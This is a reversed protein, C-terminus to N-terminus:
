NTFLNRSGYKDIQTKASAKRIGAETLEYIGAGTSRRIFGEGALYLFNKKAEYPGLKHNKSFGKISIPCEDLILNQYTYTKDMKIVGSLMEDLNNISIVDAEPVLTSRRGKERGNKIVGTSPFIYIEMKERKRGSRTTEINQRIRGIAQLMEDITYIRNWVEESWGSLNISALIKHTPPNPECVLIITDIKDEEYFSNKSRLNYYYAYVINKAKIKPILIDSIIFKTAIVLVNNRKKAAIRDIMNILKGTVNNDEGKLIKWTTIPYNGRNLQYINEYRYGIEKVVMNDGVMRKWVDRTATGDLGIIKLDLNLVDPTFYTINLSGFKWQCMHQIMEPTARSLMEYISGLINYPINTIDNSGYLGIINRSFKDLLNYTQRATPIRCNLLADYDIPDQQLIGLIEDIDSGMNAMTCCRRLHSVQRPYLTEEHLFCSVPNEDIILVDYDELIKSGAVEEDLFKPFWYNLHAHTIALNPRETRAKRQNQAYACYPLYGCSSCVSHIDINYKLLEGMDQRMCIKRKSKLQLFNYYRLSSNEINEVIVDHTPAAYAWKMGASDVAQMVSVTKGGGPFLAWILADYEDDRIFKVTGDIITKWIEKQNM